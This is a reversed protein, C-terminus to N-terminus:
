KRKVSGYKRIIKQDRKAQKRRNNRIEWVVFCIAGTGMLICCVSLLYFIWLDNEGDNDYHVVCVGDVEIVEAYKKTGLLFDNEYYKISVTKGRPLANEIEKKNYDGTINYREGTETIILYYDPARYQHVREVSRIVIDKNILENYEAIPLLVPLLPLIIATLFCFIIFIIVFTNLKLIDKDSMRHM